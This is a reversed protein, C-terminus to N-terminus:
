PGSVYFVVSVTLVPAVAILWGCLRVYRDPIRDIWGDIDLHFAKKM